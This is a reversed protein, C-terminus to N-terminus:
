KQKKAPELKIKENTDIIVIPSFARAFAMPSRFASGIISLAESPRTVLSFFIDDHDDVVEIRGGKEPANQPKDNDM